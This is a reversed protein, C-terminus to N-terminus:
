SGDGHLDLADAVGQLSLAWHSLLDRPPPLGRDAHAAMQLSIAQLRCSLALLDIGGSM